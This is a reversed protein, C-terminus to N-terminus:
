DQGGHPECSITKFQYDQGGHPECSKQKAIFDCLLQRIM